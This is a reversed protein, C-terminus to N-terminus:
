AINEVSRVDFPLMNWLISAAVYYNQGLVSISMSKLSLIYILIIHDFSSINRVPTLLAPTLYKRSREQYTITCIKKRYPVPLWHLSWVLSISRIFAVTFVNYNQSIIIM